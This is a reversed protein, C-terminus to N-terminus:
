KKHHIYMRIYYDCVYSCIHLRYKEKLRRETTILNDLESQNQNFQVQIDSKGTKVSEVSGNLQLDATRYYLYCLQPLVSM